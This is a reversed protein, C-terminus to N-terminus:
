RGSHPNSRSWTASSRSRRSRPGATAWPRTSSRAAVASRSVSKRTRTSRGRPRPSRRTRPVHDRGRRGQTRVQPRSARRQSDSARRSGWRCCRWRPELSRQVQAGRLRHRSRRLSRGVRMLGCQLRRCRLWANAEPFRNSSPIGRRLRVSPQKLQHRGRRRLRDHRRRHLRRRRSALFLATGAIDSPRGVRGRPNVQGVQDWDTAEVDGGGGVGTSLMWTPFPGPAIANVLINRKM